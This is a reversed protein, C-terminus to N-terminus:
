KNQGQLIRMVTSEHIRIGQKQEVWNVYEGQSKKNNSAYAYLEYKQINTLTVKKM